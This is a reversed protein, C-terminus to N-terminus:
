RKLKLNYSNNNYSTTIWFEEKTLKQIDWLLSLNQNSLIISLSSAGITSSCSIEIQKRDDTARWSNSPSTGCSPKVINTSLQNREFNIKLTTCYSPNSTLSILSDNGNVSYSLINYNGAIRQDTGTSGGLRGGEPYKKCGCPLLILILLFVRM